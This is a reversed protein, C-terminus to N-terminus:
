EECKDKCWGFWSSLNWSKLTDQDEAKTGTKLESKRRIRENTKWGATNRKEKHMQDSGRCEVTKLNKCGRRHTSETATTPPDTKCGDRKNALEFDLRHPHLAFINQWNTVGENALRVPLNFRLLVQRRIKEDRPKTHLSAVQEEAQVFQPQWKLGDGDTIEGPEGTQSRRQRRTAKFPTWLNSVSCIKSSSPM